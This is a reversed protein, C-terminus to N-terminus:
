VWDVGADEGGVERKRIEFKKQDTPSLRAWDEPDVGGTLLIRHGKAEHEVYYKVRRETFVIQWWVALQGKSAALSICSEGLDNLQGWEVIDAAVKDKEAALRERAELRDLVLHLMVSVLRSSSYLAIRHLPTNGLNGTLTFDIPNPSALCAEVAEVEREMIFRGLTQTLCNGPAFFTVAAGDHVLRRVEAVDVAYRQSMKYLRATKEDAEIMTVMGINFYQQEEEEMANWDIEWLIYLPIPETKDAFFPMGRVEQWVPALLQHKGVLSLFTYGDRDPLAWDVPVDRPHREIRHVVAKTMAVVCEDPVTAAAEAVAHLFAKKFKGLCNLNIPEAAEALLTEVAAVSGNLALEHLIPNETLTDVVFIDAGHRVCAKLAALQGTTQLQWNCSTCLRLLEATAERARKASLAEIPRLLPFFVTVDVLQQQHEGGSSRKANGGEKEFFRWTHLMPILDRYCSLIDGVVAEGEEIKKSLPLVQEEHYAELVRTAAM